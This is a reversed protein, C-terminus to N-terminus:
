DKCCRFGINPLLTKEAARPALEITCALGLSPSLYSGGHLQFIRDPAAAVNTQTTTWEAVNGSLDFLTAGTVVCAALQGTPLVGQVPQDAGNCTLGAYTPGYPYLTNAPGRCAKGARARHLTPLRPRPRRLRGRGRLLLRRDM